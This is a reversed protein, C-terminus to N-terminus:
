SALLLAAALVTSKMLLVESLISAFSSGSRFLSRRNLTERMVMVSSRRIWPMAPFPFKRMQAAKAYEFVQNVESENKLVVVSCGYLNLGASRVKNAAAIIQERSSELPLHFSKLAIHQIGVRQTMAIAQELSYEKFTFSAIGLKLRDPTPTQPQDKGFVNKNFVAGATLGLAATKFFARRSQEM